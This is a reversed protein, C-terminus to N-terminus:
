APLPAAAPPIAAGAERRPLGSAAWIALGGLPVPAAWVAALMLHEELPFTGGFLLGVGLVFLHFLAGLPTAVFILIGGALYLLGRLAWIVIHM